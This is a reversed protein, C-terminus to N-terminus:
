DTEAAVEATGEGRQLFEDDQSADLYEGADEDRGSGSTTSKALPDQGPGADTTPQALEAARLEAASDAAVL